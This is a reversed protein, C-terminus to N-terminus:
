PGGITVSCFNNNHRIKWTSEVNQLMFIKAEAWVSVTVPSQNTNSM